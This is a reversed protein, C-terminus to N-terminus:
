IVLNVQHVHEDLADHDAKVLNLRVGYAFMNDKLLTGAEPNLLVAAEFTCERNSEATMLGLLVINNEGLCRQFFDGYTYDELELGSPVTVKELPICAKGDVVRPSLASFVRTMIPTLSAQVLLQHVSAPVFVAGSKFQPSELLDPLNTPPKTQLQTLGTRTKDNLLTVSNTDQLEITIHAKPAFVQLMNFTAISDTDQLFDDVDDGLGTEFFTEQALVVATKCSAVGCSLMLIPDTPSGSCLHLCEDCTTRGIGRLAVLKARVKDMRAESVDALVSVTKGTALLCCLMALIQPGWGCIVIETPKRSARKFTDTGLAPTSAALRPSFAKPTTGRPSQHGTSTIGDSNLRCGEIWSHLQERNRLLEPASASRTNCVGKPVDPLTRYEAPAGPAEMPVSPSGVSIQAQEPQKRSWTGAGFKHMLVMPWNIVAKTGYTAEEGINPQATFHHCASTTDPIITADLWFKQVDGGYVEELFASLKDQKSQKGADETPRRGSLQPLPTLPNIDLGGGRLQLWRELGEQMGLAIKNAMGPSSVCIGTEDGLLIYDTDMHLNLGDECELGFLVTCECCEYFYGVLDVFCAGAYEELCVPHVMSRTAGTYEGPDVRPAVLETLLTSTGPVLCNATLMSTRATTWCVVSDVGRNWTPYSELTHALGEHLVLACVPITPAVAKLAMFRSLTIFDEAQENVVSSDSFLLVFRADTLCVRDFTDLSLMNGQYFAAAGDCSEIVSSIFRSPAQDGLVVVDQIDNDASLVFTTVLDRLTDRLVQFTISGCLLIHGRGPKSKYVHLYAQNNKWATSLDALQKPLFIYGVVVVSYLLMLGLATNCPINPRGLTEITLFYFAVHFDLDEEMAFFCSCAFILCLATFCVKLAQVTLENSNGSSANRNFIRFIKLVRLVRLARLLRLVRLFSINGAGAFFILVLLAPVVTVFDVVAIPEFFYIWKDKALYFRLVYDTAFILTLVM